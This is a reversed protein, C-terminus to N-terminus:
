SISKYNEHKANFCCQEIKYIFIYSYLIQLRNSKVSKAVRISLINTTIMNDKQFM